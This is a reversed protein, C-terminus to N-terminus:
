LAEIQPDTGRTLTVIARDAVTKWRSPPPPQVSIQGVSPADADFDSAVLAFHMQALEPTRRRLQLDDGIIQEADGKGSFVRYAMPRGRHLGIIVDGNTVLVNVASSSGGVEATMGDVVALTSRLADRVVPAEVLVDNLRGSDHLFSLFVYFVIESDTEGRIGSRLFEPVSQVLRERVGDFGFVTGTKAFLWQRSRFPHTNETRLAGVTATRVHGILVDARVDAAIKAVDLEDGDIPRRRMLVEGGQYFGIGWGLQSGTRARVRLAEAESGLVRGALDARNGILGFLRAM